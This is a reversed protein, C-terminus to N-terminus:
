GGLELRYRYRIVSAPGDLLRSRAFLAQSFQLNRFIFHEPSLGHEAHTEVAIDPLQKTLSFALGLLHADM